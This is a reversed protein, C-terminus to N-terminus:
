SSHIVSNTDQHWDRTMIGLILIYGLFLVVTIWELLYIDHFAGSLIDVLGTAIGVGLAWRPFRRDYRLSAVSFVFASGLLIYLAISWFRHQAIHTIPYVASMIMALGGLLGLVCTVALMTKQVKSGGRSLKSLDLFFPILLLGTTIIGINYFIAGQPNLKSSGLDSLWNRLPSFSGPIRWFALMAFSLYFLIVLITAIFTIPVAKKM